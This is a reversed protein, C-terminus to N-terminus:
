VKGLEHTKIRIKDKEIVAVDIARGGSTIDREVASKISDVVLKEADKLSMDEKYDKELVGLAIPSGSGTSLFRREEEMGGLADVMFIRPKKDFGAVVLHVMYPLPSWRGSQLINSLLTAAAGVSPKRRNRIEFLKLEARMYRVLALADGWVGATTLAIHDAIPFIKKSEKSAVLYGFTAKKEAGIVVGDKCVIGVTTTGSELVKLKKIDKMDM